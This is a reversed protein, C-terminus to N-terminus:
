RGLLEKKITLYRDEIDKKDSEESIAQQSDRKIMEAHHLRYPTPFDRQALSSLGASLRDICRIATFPDNVAPSIARLAIEVLQEIPFEVDQQETREKGLIFTDELKKVLKRTIRERPYVMM